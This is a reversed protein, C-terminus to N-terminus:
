RPMGLIRESIINKQIQSSGGYITEARARLFIYQFKGGEIGDDGWHPTESGFIDMAVEGFKKHWEAKYMKHISSEVTIKENNILKHATKLGMAKLVEIDIYSKALKQRFYPNELANERGNELDEVANILDLLEQKYKLAHSSTGGGREYSLARMTVKWGNNVGGVINLDDNDIVVEDFFVEAFDDEDGNMQKLNRVTVGPTDMPLIFFTIGKHKPAESDTRALLIFYDAHAAWSTWIKQGNIVWKDGKLKAKTSLSALDSGANPESFCQAWMEEGRIMKTLYREKQAETGVEVLTPGFVGKAILNMGSPADLRASEENFIVQFIQDLGQGGYEKPWTIGSFGGEYLKKEWEIQQHTTYKGNVKEPINDKLWQHARERYEEHEKSFSIDM